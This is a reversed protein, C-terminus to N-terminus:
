RFVVPLGSDVRGGPSRPPAAGALAFALFGLDNNSSTGAAVRVPTLLGALTPALPSRVGAIGATEHALGAVILLVSLRLVKSAM